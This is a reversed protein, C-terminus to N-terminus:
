DDTHDTQDMDMLMSSVCDNAREHRLRADALELDLHDDMVHGEVELKKARRALEAELAAREREAEEKHLALKRAHVGREYAARREERALEDLANRSAVTSVAGAVVLVKQNVIETTAAREALIGKTMANQDLIM